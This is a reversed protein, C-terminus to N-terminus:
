SWDEIRLGDVREFERTNNTVIILGRSR